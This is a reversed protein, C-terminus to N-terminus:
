FVVGETEKEHKGDGTGKLLTIVAMEQTDMCRNLGGVGTPLGHVIERTLGNCVEVLVIIDKIAGNTLCLNGIQGNKGSLREIVARM